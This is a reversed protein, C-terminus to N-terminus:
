RNKGESAKWEEWWIDIQKNKQGDSLGSNFLDQLSNNGYQKNIFVNFNDFIKGNAIVEREEPAVDHGKFCLPSLFTTNAAKLNKTIYASVIVNTDIVAYIM